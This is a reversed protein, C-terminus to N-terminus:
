DTARPADGGKKSTDNRVMYLVLNNTTGDGDTCLRSRAFGRDAQQNFSSVEKSPWRMGNGRRWRKSQGACGMAAGCNEEIPRCMEEGRRLIKTQGACGMAAGGDRRDAPVDGRRAVIDENPRRMGDGRRWRKSRGACGMAASCNEDRGACGMAAGGYRDRGACRRASRDFKQSACGM